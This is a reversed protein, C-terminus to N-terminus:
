EFVPRIAQFIIPTKGPVTVHRGFLVAIKSPKQMNEFGQFGCAFRRDNKRVANQESTIGLCRDALVDNVLAVNLANDAQRGVEKVARTNRGANNDNIFCIGILSFANKHDICAVIVHLIAVLVTQALLIDVLDNGGKVALDCSIRLIGTKHRVLLNLYLVIIIEVDRAIDIAGNRFIQLVDLRVQVTANRSNIHVRHLSVPCEERFQLFLKERRQSLAIVLKVDVLVIHTRGYIGVLFKGSISFANIHCKISPHVLHVLPEAINILEYLEFLINNLKRFDENGLIGINLQYILIVDILNKKGIPLFGHRIINKDQRLIAIVCPALCLVNVLDGFIFLGLFFLLLVLAPFALKDRFCQDFRCEKCSFTCSNVFRLLDRICGLAM